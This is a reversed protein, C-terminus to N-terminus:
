LGLRAIVREDLWRSFVDQINDLDEDQLLAFPRAPVHMAGQAGLSKLQEPSIHLPDKFSAATLGFGSQQVKGYWIKDPLDLIAAQTSTITWINIQQMTKFLLGSRRLISDPGYKNKPDNEKMTVTDDAYAQWGVPRGNVIFNEAFSPAIVQKIARKLPEKFSRIDIDLTDFQRASLALSPKFNFQMLGQSAILGSPFNVQDVM